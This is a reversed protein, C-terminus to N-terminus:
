TEFLKGQKVQVFKCNAKVWAKASPDGGSYKQEIYARMEQIAKEASSRDVVNGASQADLLKESVEKIFGSNPKLTPFLRMLDNGNLIPKAISPGARNKFDNMLQMDNRKKQVDAHDPNAADKSLTDAMSHLMVFKWVESSEPHGPIESERLFRGIMKPTWGDNTHGHPKMHLQIVKNVFKRDADPIAISKMISEAIEASKDEHGIYSYEAPNKEKPKGIEPHAKGYDHFLAALLMKIRTEEPANEQKLLEHLNRVVLLTHDLLNHKHHSNRQDMRLDLLNQAEPVNFIAKDLGTDFMVQLADAPKAGAMLKLIEPGARESAVKQMYSQQVEPLMMAKVLNPDIKANPYRSYFRLVRLMRLPDDMFTKRPDLPTRLTMTQLDQMGGVFDEVQGANVNYFMSNITLDRRQADIEPTGMEMTPVRSDGYSESRLNVFDIKRGWLEIAVTELHKSKEVNADVTYSKGVGYSAGMRLLVAELQRGTMNDLAIDLDDSQKGLLKDRVWGGAVRFTTGLRFMQNAALLTQFIKQEEATLQFQPINATKVTRM